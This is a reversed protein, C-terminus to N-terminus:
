DLLLLRDSLIQQLFQTSNDNRLFFFYSHFPITTIANGFYSPFFLKPKHCHWQRFLHSFTQLLQQWLEM